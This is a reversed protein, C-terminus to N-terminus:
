ASAALRPAATVAADVPDEGLEGALVDPPRLVVVIVCCMLAAIPLLVVVSLFATTFGLSLAAAAGESPRRRVGGTLEAAHTASALVRAESRM